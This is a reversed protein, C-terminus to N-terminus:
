FAYALRWRVRDDGHFQGIWGQGTSTFIGDVGIGANWNGWSKPPNLSVDFSFLKSDNDIDYTANADYTLRSGPEWHLGMNAAQSFQYVPQRSFMTSTLPDTITSVNSKLYSASLELGTALETRAGVAGTTKPDMPEVIWNSPVNEPVPIDRTLSGWISWRRDKFGTELMGLYHYPFLPHVTTAFSATNDLVISPQIAINAGSFPTYGLNTSIWGGLEGGYRLSLAANPLLFFHRPDPYAISYTVPVQQGNVNTYQPLPSWFPSAAGLTNGVQSVPYSQEPVSIPSGSFLVRFNGADGEYFLGTRGLTEPLLPDWLFRPQWIGMKWREDMESWVYHRRGLTLQHDEILKRNTAMYAAPAEVTFPHPGKTFTKAELELKGEFTAGEGELKPELSLVLSSDSRDSSSRLFSSLDFAANGGVPGESAAAFSSCLATAGAV